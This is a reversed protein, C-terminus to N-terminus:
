PSLVIADIMVRPRASVARSADTRLRERLVPEFAEVLYKAVGHLTPFEVTLNRIELLAM